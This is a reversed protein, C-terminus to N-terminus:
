EAHFMAVIQSKVDKWAAEAEAIAVNTAALAEDFERKERVLREAAERRRQEAEQKKREEEQRKREEERRKRAEEAAKRRAAEAVKRKAAEEAQKAALRAQEAAQREQEAKAEAIGEEVANKLDRAVSIGTRVIGKMLSQFGM